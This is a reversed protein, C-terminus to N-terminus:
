NDGWALQIRTISLSDKVIEETYHKRREYSYHCNGYIKWDKREFHFYKVRNEICTQRLRNKLTLTPLLYRHMFNM